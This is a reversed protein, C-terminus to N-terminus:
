DIGLSVVKEVVIHFHAPDFGPGLETGGTLRREARGRIEVMRPRWPPLVDDVVLSVWPNTGVDRWKKRSAFDHGGIDVTGDDNVRFSTPVVHPRGHGDVTALRCLRQSRLYALQAETFTMVPAEEDLSRIPRVASRGGARRLTAAARSIDRRRGVRPPAGGARSAACTILAGTLGASPDEGDPGGFRLLLPRATHPV